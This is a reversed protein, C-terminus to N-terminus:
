YFVVGAKECALVEIGPFTLRVQRGSSVHQVIGPPRLEIIVDMPIVGEPMKESIFSRFSSDRQGLFVVLWVPVVEQEVTPLARTPQRKPQGIRLLAAYDAVGDGNFDAQIIQDKKQDSGCSQWDIEQQRLIAAGPAVGRIASDIESSAAVITATVLNTALAAASAWAHIPSSDVVIRAFVALM